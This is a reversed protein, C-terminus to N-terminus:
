GAEKLKQYRHRVILIIGTEEKRKGAEAGGKLAVGNDATKIDGASGGGEKEGDVKGDKKRRERRGRGPKEEDRRKM